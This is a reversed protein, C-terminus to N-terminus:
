AGFDLPVCRVTCGTNYPQRFMGNYGGVGTSQGRECELTNGTSATRPTSTWFAGCRGLTTYGSPFIQSNTAQMFACAPILSSVTKDSVLWAGPSPDFTWQFKDPDITSIQNADGYIPEFEQFTPLRYGSEYEDLKGEAILRLALESSLGALRCIDGKGLGFFEDNHVGGEGPAITRGASHDDASYGSWGAWDALSSPDEVTSFLIDDIGWVDADGVATHTFAVTGGFKTYLINTQSVQETWTGLALTGLGHDYYLLYPATPTAMYVATVEVDSAPMTFTGAAKNISVDGSEVLWYTLTYGAPLAAQVTVEEGEAAVPVSPTGGNVRVEFREDGFVGEIKVDGAPMYFTNDRGSVFADGMITNWAYFEKDATEDPVPTLKVKQGVVVQSSNEVVVGGVEITVSGGESAVIELTYMGPTPEEDKQCGGFVLASVVLLRACWTLHKKM